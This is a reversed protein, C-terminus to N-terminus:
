PTSYIFEINTQEMWNANWYEIMNDLSNFYKIANSYHFDDGMTIFLHKQSM